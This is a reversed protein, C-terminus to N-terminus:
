RVFCFRGGALLMLSGGWVAIAKAPKIMWAATQKTLGVIQKERVAAAKTLKPTKMTLVAAAKTPRPTKMTLTPTKKERVAAARAPTPTKMTLVAIQKERVAPMTARM